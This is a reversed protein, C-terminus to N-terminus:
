KADPLIRRVSTPCPEDWELHQDFEKSLGRGGICGHAIATQDPGVSIKTDGVGITKTAGTRLMTQHM